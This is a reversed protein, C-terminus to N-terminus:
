FVNRPSNFSVQTPSPSFLLALSIHNSSIGGLTAQPVAAAADGPLENSLGFRLSVGSMCDSDANECSARHNMPESFNPM